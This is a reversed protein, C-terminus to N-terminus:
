DEDPQMEWDTGFWDFGDSKMWHKPELLDLIWWFMDAITVLDPSYDAQDVSDHVFHLVLDAACKLRDEAYDGAMGSQVQVRLHDIAYKLANPSAFGEWDHYSEPEGDVFTSLRWYDHEFDPM